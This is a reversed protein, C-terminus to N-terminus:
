RILLMRRTASFQQKGTAEVRYFYVGSGLNSADIKWQHAGKVQHGLDSQFIKQGLIDYLSVQVNAAQPLTYSVSTTPNFPNPYNQGVSFVLPVKGDSDLAAPASPTAQMPNSVPSENLAKDKATILFYYTKGNVLGTVTKATDLLDLATTSDLLATPNELTDGYIYYRYFDTESNPQWFLDAQANGGIAQLFLPAAPATLDSGNFLYAMGSTRANPAGVIIDDVLDGDLDNGGSVSKGFASGMLDGDFIADVLDDPSNGGYYIYARGTGANAASAGVILDGNDDENVDGLDNVGAGFMDGAIEGTLTMSPASALTGNGYFVYARGQNSNYAPAGAILDEFGDENFWGASHLSSGLQEGANASAYVWDAQDDIGAGGMYLYLKGNGGSFGPAGVVIDKYGDMDADIVCVTSGFLDGATEGTITLDPINDVIEGGYFVYVRGTSGSYGPAGVIIDSYGDENVDNTGCVAQGFQEAASQGAFVVDASANLMSGGYYMNVRGISGNYGPASILFDPNMDDNFDGEGFATGFLDGAASGNFTLDAVSDVPNGGAYFYAQGTSNNYGPAGILLDSYNNKNLDGALYVTQSYNDASVQDGEFFRLDTSQTKLSQSGALLMSAGLLAIVALSLCTKYYSNRKM